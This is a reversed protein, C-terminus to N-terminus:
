FEETNKQKKKKINTYIIKEKHKQKVREVAKKVRKKYNPKVKNSRLKRVTERIKDNLAENLHKTTKNLVKKKEEKIGDKTLSLNIFKVNKKKLTEVKKNNEDSYLIFSSGYTDFRGCRGARHFYYNLDNPLDISIVVDVNQIDLGRAGIDSSILISNQKLNFNELVNKIERKSLDGHLVLHDIEQKYLNKSLEPINKKNSVFIITKFAHSYELIEKIAQINDYHKTNVLYHKINTTNISNNRVDIIKNTKILKKLTTIEHENLSASFVAIQCNITDVLSILEDDFGDFAIMDGEDIIVRKVTKLNYFSNLKGFLSPTIILINATQKYNKLDYENKLLTISINKNYVKKINQCVDFIQEGLSTTPVVIIANLCNLQIDNFIPVLYALTKGTGTPALMIYSSNSNCLLPIARDQIDSCKYFGLKNLAEVLEANLFKFNSFKNGM